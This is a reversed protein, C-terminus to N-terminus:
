AEDLGRDPRAVDLDGLRADVAELLLAREERAVHLVPLAGVVAGVDGLNLHADLLVVDAGARAAPLAHVVLGGLAGALASLLELFLLGLGEDEPDALGAARLETRRFLIREAVM